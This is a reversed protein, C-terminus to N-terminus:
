GRKGEQSKPFVSKLVGNGFTVPAKFPRPTNRVPSQSVKEPFVDNAAPLIHAM